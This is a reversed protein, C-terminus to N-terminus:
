LPGRCPRLLAILGLAVLTLAALEWLPRGGLLGAVGAYAPLDALGAGVALWRAQWEMAPPPRRGLRHRYGIVVTLGPLALALGAALSHRVWEPPLVPLDLAWLFAAASLPVVIAPVALMRVWLSWPDLGWTTRSM